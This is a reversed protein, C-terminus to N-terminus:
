TVAIFVLVQFYITQKSLELYRVLVQEKHCYTISFTQKQYRQFIKDRTKVDWIWWLKALWTHSCKYAKYNKWIHLFSTTSDLYYYSRFLEINIYFYSLNLTLDQFLTLIKTGTNWNAMRIKFWKFFYCHFLSHKNCNGLKNSWPRRSQM